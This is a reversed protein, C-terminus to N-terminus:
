NGKKSDPTKTIQEYKKAYEGAPNQDVGLTDELARNFQGQFDTDSLLPLNREAIEHYSLIRYVPDGHKNVGDQAIFAKDIASTDVHVGEALLANLVFRASRDGTMDPIAPINTNPPDGLVTSEMASGFVSMAASGAPGAPTAGAATSLATVGAGYALKRMDYADKESMGIARLGEHTGSDVLGQLVAANLIRPDDRRVDAHKGVDDAYSHAQELALKDAAANFEVYADQQTGLVSFLGKAIPRESNLGDLSNFRDGDTNAGSIGAIDDM